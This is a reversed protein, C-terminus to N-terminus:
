KRRNRLVERTAAIEEAKAAAAAKTALAVTDCGSEALSVAIARHRTQREKVESQNVRVAAILAAYDPAAAIIRIPQKEVSLLKETGKDSNWLQCVDIGVLRDAILNRDDQPIDAPDVEISVISKPCDIGKRFCEAQDVEFRLKM